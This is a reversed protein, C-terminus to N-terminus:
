LRRKSEHPGRESKIVRAGPNALLEALKEIRFRAAAPSGADRGDIEFGVEVRLWSRPGLQANAEPL